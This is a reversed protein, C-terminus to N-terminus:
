LGYGGNVGDVVGMSCRGNVSSSVSLPLSPMCQFSAQSSSIARRAIRLVHRVSELLSDGGGFWFGM